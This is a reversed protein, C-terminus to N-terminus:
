CVAITLLNVLNNRLQEYGDGIGVNKGNSEAAKFTLAPEQGM